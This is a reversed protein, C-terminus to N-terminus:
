ETVNKIFCDVGADKLLAVASRAEQENNFVGIYFRHGGDSGKYMVIRHGTLNTVKMALDFSIIKSKMLMAVQVWWGAESVDGTKVNLRYNKRLTDVTGRLIIAEGLVDSKEVPIVKLEESKVVTKDNTERGGLLEDDNMVFRYVEDSREPVRNSVLLGSLGDEDIVLNFDDYSTNFGAGLNEVKGFGRSNVPVKYIDLGGFGVHGDSAFFFWDGWIYPFVENGETNIGPGANQPEMWKGRADKDSYWIDSGGYGGEMTSSFYIRSGNNAIFPHAINYSREGIKLADVIRYRNNKLRALLIRCNTNDEECRTCYLLGNTRDFSFSGDNATRNGIGKLMRGPQYEGDRFVSLYPNSYGMGTRQSIERRKEPLLDSTSSYLIGEPLFSIGYESGRTNIYPMPKFRVGSNIAPANKAFRCSAIKTRILSDDGNQKLYLGFCNEAERYNGTILYTEGLFKKLEPRVSGKREASQFWELAHNYRNMRFCCVGAQFEVYAEENGAKNEALLRRYEQLANYYAGQEFWRDAKKTVQGTVVVPWLFFLIGVIGYRMRM